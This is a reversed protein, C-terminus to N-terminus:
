IAKDKYKSKYHVWKECWTRPKIKLGSIKGEKISKIVEKYLDSVRAISLNNMHILYVLGLVGFGLVVPDKIKLMDTSVFLAVMGGLFGLKSYFETGSERDLADVYKLVSEVLLTENAM